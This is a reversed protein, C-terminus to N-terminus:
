LVKEPEVYHQFLKPLEFDRDSNFVNIISPITTSTYRVKGGIKAFKNNSRTSKVGIRM